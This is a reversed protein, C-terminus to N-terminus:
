LQYIVTYVPIHPTYVVMHCTYVMDLRFQTKIVKSDLMVHLKCRNHIIYYEFMLFNNGPRFVQHHYQACIGTMHKWIGAYVTM